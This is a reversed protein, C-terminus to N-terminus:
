GSSESRFDDTEGQQVPPLPRIGTIASPPMTAGMIVLWIRGTKNIEELEEMTVKWCSVVAPLGNENTGLFVNIAECEDDTMTPPRDLVANSGHFDTPVAM